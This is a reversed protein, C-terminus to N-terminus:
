FYDKDKKNIKIGIDLMNIGMKGALFVMIKTNIM